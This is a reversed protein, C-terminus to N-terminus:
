CDSHYMSLYMSLYIISLLCISMMDDHLTYATTFYCKNPVLQHLQNYHHHRHYYYYYYLQHHHHHHSQNNVQKVNMVNDIVSSGYLNDGNTVSIWKCYPISLIIRLASDTTTYGADSKSFQQFSSLSLPMNHYHNHYHHHHNLHYSCHHNHDYDSIIIILSSLQKSQTKTRFQYGSIETQCRSLQYYLSSSSHLWM